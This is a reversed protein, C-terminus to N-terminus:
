RGTAFSAFSHKEEFSRRPTSPTKALSIGKATDPSTPPSVNLWSSWSPIQDLFGPLKFPVFSNKKEIELSKKLSIGRSGRDSGTAM